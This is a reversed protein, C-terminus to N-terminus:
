RSNNNDWARKMDRYQSTSEWGILNISSNIAVMQAVFPYTYAEYEWLTKDLTEWRAPYELSYEPSKNETIDTVYSSYGKKIQWIFDNDPHQFEEPLWQKVHLWKPKNELIEYNINSAIWGCIRSSERQARKWHDTSTEGQERKWEGFGTRVYLSM